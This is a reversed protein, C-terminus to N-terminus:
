LFLYNLSIEQAIKSFFQKDEEARNVLVEYESKDSEKTQDAAWIEPDFDEVHDKFKTAIQKYM